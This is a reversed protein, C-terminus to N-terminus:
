SRLLKCVWRANALGRFLKSLCSSSQTPWSGMSLALTNTYNCGPVVPWIQPLVKGRLHDGVWLAKGGLAFSCMQKRKGRVCRHLSSSLPGSSSWVQKRHQPSGSALGLLDCFSSFPSPPGPPDESLRRETVANYQSRKKNSRQATNQAENNNITIKM